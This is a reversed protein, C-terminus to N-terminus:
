IGDEGEKKNLHWNLYLRAWNKLKHCASCLIQMNQIEDKGGKDLEKIHDITLTEYTGLQKRNRLCLFCFEEKFNHLNCIDRVSKKSKRNTNRRLSNPNALWKVFKRCTPCDLRAYHPTNPTESIILHSKCISCIEEKNKEM